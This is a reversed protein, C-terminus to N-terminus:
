NTQPNAAPPPKAAEAKARDRAGMIREVEADMTGRLMKSWMVFDAMLSWAPYKFTAPRNREIFFHSVWAPGYGALPAIALLWRKRLLVSAAVTGMALSTGVFHFTRTSKKSHECVYYPWFDEFSGIREKSMTALM